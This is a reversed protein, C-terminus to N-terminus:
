SYRDAVDLLIRRYRKALPEPAHHEEIWERSREGLATRRGHDGALSTLADAVEDATKASVMPHWPYLDDMISSDIYTLVPRRMALSELAVGGFWGVGFDDAVVHALLYLRALEPWSFGGSRPPALFRVRDEIDLRRVLELARDRDPGESRDVFALAIRDAPHRSAFRAFGEIMVENRKWQGSERLAPHPDLMLRSPHLVLFDLAALDPHTRRADELDGPRETFIETDVGCPKYDMTRLETAGLAELARLYPAYPPSWVERMHPIARRQRRGIVEATARERLSRTRFAFRAPFPMVTLDGGFPFFCAPRKTHQAFIPGFESVLAIDADALRQTLAAHRPLLFARPTSFDEIITGAEPELSGGSAVLYGLDDRDILHTVDLDAHDRLARAILRFVTGFLAFRPARV